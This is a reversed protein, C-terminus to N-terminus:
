ASVQYKSYNNNRQAALNPPRIGNDNTTAHLSHKVIISMPYDDRAIEANFDGLIIITHRSIREYLKDIKGYFEEKVEEWADEMPAYNDVVSINPM